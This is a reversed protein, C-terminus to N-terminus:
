SGKKTQEFLLGNKIADPDDGKAKRMEAKQDFEEAAFGAEWPRKGDITNTKKEPNSM